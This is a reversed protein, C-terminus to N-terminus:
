RRAAVIARSMSRRAIAPMAALERRLAEEDPTREPLASLGSLIDDLLEEPASRNFDGTWITADLARQASPSLEINNSATV